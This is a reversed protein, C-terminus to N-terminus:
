EMLDMSIPATSLQTSSRQKDEDEVPAHFASGKGGDDSLEARKDETKKIQFLEACQCHFLFIHPQTEGNYLTDQHQAEGGEECLTGCQDHLDNHILLCDFVARQRLVTSVNRQGHKPNDILYITQHHRQNHSDGNARLRQEAIIVAGFEKCAYFFQRLGTQDDTNGDAKETHQTQLDERLM